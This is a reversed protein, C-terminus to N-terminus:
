SKNEYHKLKKILRNIRIQCYWKGMNGSANAYREEWFKIGQNTKANAKELYDVDWYSNNELMAEEWIGETYHPQQQEYEERLIKRRSKEHNKNHKGTM